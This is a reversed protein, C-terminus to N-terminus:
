SGCPCCGAINGGPGSVAARCGSPLPPPQAPGPGGCFVAYEDAACANIGCHTAGSDLTECIPYTRAAYCQTTYVDPRDLSAPWTCAPLTTSSSDPLTSADGCPPLGADAHQHGDAASDRSGRGGDQAPTSADPGSTGPGGTCSCTNTDWTPMSFACRGECKGCGVVSTMALALGASTVTTGLVLFTWPFRM